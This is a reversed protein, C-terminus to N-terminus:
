KYYEPRRAIMMPTTAGNRTLKYETSIGLLYDETTDLRFKFLDFLEYKLRTRCKGNEIKRLYAETIGARASLDVLTYGHIHRLERIRRGMLQMQIKQVAKSIEINQDDEIYRDLLERISELAFEDQIFKFVNMQDAPIKPEDMNYHDDAGYRSMDTVGYSNLLFNLIDEYKITVEKKPNVKLQDWWTLKREVDYKSEDRKLDERIVMELFRNFAEIGYGSRKEYGNMRKLAILYKVIDKTIGNFKEKYNDEEVKFTEIGVFRMKDEMNKEGKKEKIIDNEAQNTLFRM